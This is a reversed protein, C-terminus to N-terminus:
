VCKLAESLLINFYTKFNLTPNYEMGEKYCSANWKEWVDYCLIKIITKLLTRKLGKQPDICDRIVQRHIM